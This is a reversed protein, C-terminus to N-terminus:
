SIFEIWSGERQDHKLKVDKWGANLYRERLIKFHDSNIGGPPDMTISAGSIGSLKRKQLQTDIKKEYSDVELLFESFLEKPSIAM